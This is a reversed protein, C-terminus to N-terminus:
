LVLQSCGRITAHDLRGLVEFSGDEAQRGLDDTALFACSYINALDIVNIAGTVRGASPTLMSRPDTEDRLLLKLWPPSQFSGDISYAQSLMETMGYESYISTVGLGSKLETYLDERTREKKRGKMGGTELVKTHRLQLSFQKCFDSLAFTVGFLLTPQGETELKGITNALEDFNYLYYGSQPHGSAQILGDVMYVLSADKRELYSPLLGLICYQRPDGFFWEFGKLYSERYLAADRVFHTSTEAGTTGSSSFQLEPIFEGTTIRHTRFFSIPLFPIQDLANVNPPTGGTLECFRRYIENNYFQFHYLELAIRSFAEDNDIGFVKQAWENPKPIEAHM